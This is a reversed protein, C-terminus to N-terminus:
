VHHERHPQQNMLERYFRLYNDVAIDSAFREAFRKRAAEGMAICAVPDEALRRIAQALEPADGPAALLGTVGEEVQEPVGALRTAIVPKGLSMAELIVNPFDEDRVSPLVLADLAAMFDFVHAEIGVFEVVDALEKAAAFAQLESRLPGDGEILVKLRRPSIGTTLLQAVADLLVRHGKRPEHLAVMGLVLGDFSDLGLRHRTQEVGAQPERVKIGNHISRVKNAPLHLVGALRRGAAASGTVFMDVASIVRRDLPWDLWRALRDYPVALNNVVMLVQKVSAARAALAMARCSLAGPYGGNNIHVIDPRVEDLVTRLRAVERALLPTYALQRAVAAFLRWSPIWAPMPLADFNPLDLPWHLFDVAARQRL